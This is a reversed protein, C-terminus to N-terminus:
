GNKVESFSLAQINKEVFLVIVLALSALISFNELFLGSGNLSKYIEVTINGSAASGSSDFVNAELAMLSSASVYNLILLFVLILVVGRKKLLM